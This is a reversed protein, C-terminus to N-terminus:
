TLAERGQETAEYVLQERHSCGPRTEGTWRVLGIDRLEGLRKAVVNQQVRYGLHCHIEWATATALWDVAALVLQQQARLVPGEM